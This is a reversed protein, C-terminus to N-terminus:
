PNFYDQLPYVNKNSAILTTNGFLAVRKGFDTDFTPEDITTVEEWTNNNQVFFHIVQSRDHGRFENVIMSKEDVALSYSLGTSLDKKGMVVTDIRISQQLVYDEGLGQKKYYYVTHVASVDYACRILLGGDGTLRM